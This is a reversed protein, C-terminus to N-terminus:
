LRKEYPGKIEKLLEKEAGEPAKPYPLWWRMFRNDRLQHANAIMAGNYRHWAIIRGNPGCDEAVPLRENVRIWESNEM